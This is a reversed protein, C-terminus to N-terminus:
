GGRRGIVWLALPVPGVLAKSVDLAVTVGVGAPEVLGHLGLVDRDAAVRVVAELAWGLDLEVPSRGQYAGTVETGGRIVQHVDQLAELRPLPCVPRTRLLAWAARVAM